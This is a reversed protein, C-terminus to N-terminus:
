LEGGEYGGQDSLCTVTGCYRELLVCKNYWHKSSNNMMEALARDV